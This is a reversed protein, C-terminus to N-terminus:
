RERMAESMQQLYRGFLYRMVSRSGTVIDVSVQVGPLLTYREGGGEFYDRSLVVRVKYFTGGKDDTFTDPSIRDVIGDLRGFLTADPSTLKVYAHNGASVYGVNQPALRAEVVLRDDSPVLDVVPEGPGISSSLTVNYLKKVIGDVPAYLVTRDLNDSFSAVRQSLEAHERRARDLQTRTEEVFVAQVRAKQAKAEALAAETRGIGAESEAIRGKLESEQKLLDIHVYRNQIGQRMLDGSISVQQQLLALSNRDNSLRSRYGAIEQLRQRIQEEAANLEAALRTNRSHFLDAAERVQAPFHQIMAEPFVIRSEGKASTELRLIDFQLATLRQRLEGLEAEPRQSQLRILPDGEHVRQGESVLIDAIIGGELHKLQKVQGSPAVEGVAVSVVDLQGIFAWLVFVVLAAFMSLVAMRAVPDVDDESLPKRDLDLRAILSALTMM